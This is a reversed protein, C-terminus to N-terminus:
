KDFFVGSNKEDVSCVIEAENLIKKALQSYNVRLM